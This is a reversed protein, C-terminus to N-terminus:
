HNKLNKGNMGSSSFVTAPGMSTMIMLKLIILEQNSKLSRLKMVFKM